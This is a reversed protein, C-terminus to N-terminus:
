ESMKLHFTLKVKKFYIFHLKLCKKYMGMNQNKKISNENLNKQM